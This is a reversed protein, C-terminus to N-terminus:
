SGPPASDYPAGLTWLTVNVSSGPELCPDAPVAFCAAPPHRPRTFHARGSDALLVTRGSRVQGALWASARGALFPEYWLDAALIVDWPGQAALVDVGTTGIVVRNRRANRAASARAFCDPDAAVVRRAGAIGAAIAAAGCGAGLDLVARGRVGQAHDLIWRAIAQGAPWAICWYPYPQGLGWRREQAARVADGPGLGLALEPCLPPRTWRVHRAVFCSVEAAGPQASHM